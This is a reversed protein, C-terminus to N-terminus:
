LPDPASDDSAIDITLCDMHVAGSVIYTQIVFFFLEEAPISFLTPGIIAEPPYAIGPDASLLHVLISSM